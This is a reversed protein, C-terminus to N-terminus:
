ERKAAFQRLNTMSSRYVDQDGPFVGEAAWQWFRWQSWSRGLTGPSSFDRSPWMAVFLPNKSFARSDNTCKQWWDTTTYIAPWRGTRQHVTDSFSRIWTRMRSWSLGYCAGQAASGYEIDLLPPLTWGDPNWQGMSKFFFDATARGSAQAPQAYVYGGRIFGAARSQEYQQVYTRSQYTVGESAKIYAFRAGTRYAARWDVDPQWASVDMGQVQYPPPGGAAASTTAQPSTRMTTGAAAGAQAARAAISAGMTHDGVADMTALSPDPTGTAASATSAPSSSATSVTSATSSTAADASPLSPGAVLVGSCVAVLTTMWWRRSLGAAPMDSRPTPM